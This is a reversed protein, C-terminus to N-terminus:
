MHHWDGSPPYLAVTTTHHTTSRSGPTDLLYVANWHRVIDCSLRPVISSRTTVVCATRTAFAPPYLLDDNGVFACSPISVCGHSFGCDLFSCCHCCWSDDNLSIWPRRWRMQKWVAAWSTLLSLPAEYLSTPTTKCGSLLRLRRATAWVQYASRSTPSSLHAITSPWSAVAQM